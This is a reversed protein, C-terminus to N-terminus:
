VTKGKRYLSETTKRRDRRNEVGGLFATVAKSTCTNHWGAPQQLYYARKIVNKYGTVNGTPRTM